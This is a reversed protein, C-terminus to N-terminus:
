HQRFSESPAVGPGDRSAPRGFWRAALLAFIVMLPFGLVVMVIARQDMEALSFLPALAAGLNRTAMGTSLVIKQEYPMGFGMWYTFTTVIFFFILQPAVALSGRVGILDKGYVIACLVAMVITSVFTTKRMRQTINRLFALLTGSSRLHTMSVEVDIIRGDKCRHRTEFRDYGAAIIRQVHALTEAPNENAEIDQVSKTLLEDHSFGYLRSGEDNAELIKGERDVEWFGDTTTTTITRYKEALHRLAQEDRKRALANAFIQAVLQLRKVPAEPWDHEAWVANLCFAGIMPGGGVSLPFSLNSKIDLQRFSERDRAAEPPLEELSSFGVIRGALLQGRFWPYDEQHLLGAPQPGHQVSYFHTASFFSTAEDSLQWLVLLDLNLFECIRREADMIERDVEDAPLNVFRL